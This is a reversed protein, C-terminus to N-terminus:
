FSRQSKNDGAKQQLECWNESREPEGVWKTKRSPNGQEWYITKNVTSTLSLEM